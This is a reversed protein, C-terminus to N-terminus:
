LLSRRFYRYAHHWASLKENFHLHEIPEFDVFPILLKTELLLDKQENPLQNTKKTGRQLFPISGSM